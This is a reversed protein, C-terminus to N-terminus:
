SVDGYERIDVTQGIRFLQAFLAPVAGFSAQCFHKMHTRGRHIIDYVAQFFASKNAYMVTENGTSYMAFQWGLLLWFCRNDLIRVSKYSFFTAVHRKLANIQVSIPYAHASVTRAQESKTCQHAFHPCM